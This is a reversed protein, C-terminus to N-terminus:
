SDLSFAIRVATALANEAKIGHEATVTRNEAGWWRCVRLTGYTPTYTLTYEAGDTGTYSWAIYGTTAREIEQIGMRSAQTAIRSM